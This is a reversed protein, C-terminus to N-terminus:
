ARLDEKILNEINTNFKSSYQKVLYDIRDKEIMRYYSMLGAMVQVDHLDWNVGNQKDRLYNNMMAEFQKKKAHGITIENDKNLMVGLNWNRGASSGYRTKKTNLSFPAEFKALVNLLFNQIEEWAFDKRASILIDDAYRTYVFHQEERKRLSNYIYHDIPIMIINTITPSIPTGQPLGGNLFCLSLARKLAYLGDSDKAIESFPFIKSFMKVVFEETSNGFFDSFDFKAFWKSENQQHRKISDVTSRGKIYAFASTHYMAFCENEFISKLERLAQMLEPKPANIERLGGSRKPIYFKDYLTTREVDFLREYRINFQCLSYIMGRINFQELFKPNVTESFRTRTNTINPVMVRSLDVKGDLVDDFTIQYYIPPQKVTIYPM